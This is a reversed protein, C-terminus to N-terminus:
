KEILLNKNLNFRNSYPLDNGVKQILIRENIKKKFFNEIKNLYDPDNEYNKISICFRANYYSDKTYRNRIDNLQFNDSIIYQKKNIANEARFFFFASKLCRKEERDFEEVVKSKPKFAFLRFNNEELIRMYYEELCKALDDIKEKATNM